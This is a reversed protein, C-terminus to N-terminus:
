SIVKVKNLENVEKTIDKPADNTNYENVKNTFEKHSLVRGHLFLRKYFLEIESLEVTIRM